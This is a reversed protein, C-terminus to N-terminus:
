AVNELTWDQQRSFVAPQNLGSAVIKQFEERPVNQAGFRRWHETLYQCDIFEFGDELLKSALAVFAIKSAHDERVFMSELFFVRGLALGYGGGVLRGDLWAEVSHAFGTEHLQNFVEQIEPSIWTMERDACSAMAQRFDRDFSIEFRGKRVYGKLRKSVHVQDAPIVAREDPWYWGISGNHEGLPFMGQIYGAILRESTLPQLENARCITQAPGGLIRTVPRALWRRLRPPLMLAAHKIHSLVRRLGRKWLINLWYEM